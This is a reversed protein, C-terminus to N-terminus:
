YISNFKKICRLLKELREKKIVRKESLINKDFFNRLIPRFSQEKYELFFVKSILMKIYCRLSSLLSETCKPNYPLELLQSYYEFISDVQTEDLTARNSGYTYSKQNNEYPSVKIEIKKGNLKLTCNKQLKHRRKFLKKIEDKELFSLIDNDIGQSKNSFINENMREQEKNFTRKNDLIQYKSELFIGNDFINNKKDKYGIKHQENNTKKEM